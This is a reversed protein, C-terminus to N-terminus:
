RAAPQRTLRLAAEGYCFLMHDEDPMYFGGHATEGDAFITATGVGRDYSYDVNWRMSESGRDLSILATTASLFRLEYDYNVYWEGVGEALSSTWVTGEMADPTAYSVQEWGVPRGPLDLAQEMQLFDALLGTTKSRDIPILFPTDSQEPDPNQVTATGEGGDWSYGFPAAICVSELDGREANIFLMGSAATNFVMTYALSIDGDAEDTSAVHGSWATGALDFDEGCASFLGTTLLALAALKLTKKM